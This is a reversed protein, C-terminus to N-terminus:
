NRDKTAQTGPRSQQQESVERMKKVTGIFRHWLEIATEEDINYLDKISNIAEQNNMEGELPDPVIIGGQM